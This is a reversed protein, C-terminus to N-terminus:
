MKLKLLMGQGPALFREEYNDFPILKGNQYVSIKEAGAIGERFKPWCQVSKQLDKNVLLVYRGGDEGTFDGVMIDGALGQVLSTSSPGHCAPPIDGFHYVDDSKLQMMTPALALIQHNTNQMWQWTQTENGFQDVPAGRYNGVPYAKYNFYVIGTGGYALTTFAQFRLDAADPERFHQSGVSQVVNWFPINSKLAEARIAELSDWYTNSVTGDEMLSYQDYCLVSPHVTKVYADLYEQYNGAQLAGPSAMKPFLNMLPIKSPYNKQFLDNAAGLAAFKSTGFESGLIYGVVAPNNAIAPNKIAAELENAPPWYFAKLGCSQLMDFQAPTAFGAINIGNEKVRNLQAVTSPTGGWMMIAFEKPQGAPSATALSVRWLTCCLVLLFCNKVTFKKSTM